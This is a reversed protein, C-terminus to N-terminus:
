SSILSIVFVNHSRSILFGTRHIAVHRRLAVRFLNVSPGTWSATRALIEIGPINVGCSRRLKKHPSPPSRGCRSQRPTPSPVRRPPRPPRRIGPSSIVGGLLTIPSVQVARKQRLSTDQAFLGEFALRHMKGVDAPNVAALILVDLINNRAPFLRRTYHRFELLQNVEFLLPTKHLIASGRRSKKTLLSYIDTALIDM